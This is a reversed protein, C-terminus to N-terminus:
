RRTRASKRRYTATNVANGCREASCWRRRGAPSADFLLSACGDRRCVRLRDPPDSFLRAADVAVVGLGTRVPDDAAWTVSGTATLVPHPPPQQAWQNIVVVDTRDLRKREIRRGASRYIAERLERAEALVGAPAAEIRTTIGAEALWVAVDDDSTLHEAPAWLRHALTWTLDLCHRGGFSFRQSPEPM